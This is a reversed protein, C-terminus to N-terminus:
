SVPASKVGQWAEFAERRQAVTDLRHEEWDVEGHLDSVVLMTYLSAPLDVFYVTVHGREVDTGEWMIKTNNPLPRKLVHRVVPDYDKHRIM